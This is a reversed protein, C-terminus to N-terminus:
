KNLVRTTYFWLLERNSNKDVWEVEGDGVNTIKVEEDDELDEGHFVVGSEVVELVIAYDELVAADGELLSVDVGLGNIWELKYVGNWDVPTVELVFRAACPGQEKCRFRFPFEILAQRPLDKAGIFFSRESDNSNGLSCAMRPCTVAVRERGDM